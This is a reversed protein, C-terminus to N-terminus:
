NPKTYYIELKLKKAEDETKGGYLVTGLPNMVSAAPVNTIFDPGRVKYFDAININETVAVGLKINKVDSDKILNRLHYTINIKYSTGRKTGPDKKIYGGFSYKSNKKNATSVSLYYDLVTTSNTFDYLYLREPEYSNKFDPNETDINFVLSAENILWKNKRINDLEDSVGNPETKLVGNADYGILDTKDFLELVALSGDGGKLYLKEDGNIRDPSNIASTYVSNDNSQELLSVTNVPNTPNNFVMNLVISKAVRTTTVSGTATTTVLDEKYNITVTGKSFDIMALSGPDSGSQDVNFYLGRFYNRFVDNGALESAPANLIKTQFFTNDLKLRMGPASYTNTVKGADDTTTVVHQASDFFFGDNQASDSDNNLRTGMIYSDFGSKDNTYFLQTEGGKKGIFRGSEYVSLKIKANPDGYISDLVYTNGGETNPKTQTADVFYPVDLYVNDITANAGFVPNVTALVVETVFSATTKGFAQNNYIGLANIPLNNSQVPGTKENNATVIFNGKELDFHNEGILADGVENYDKDCSVFFVVSVFLLFSKFFISNRM